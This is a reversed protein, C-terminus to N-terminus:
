GDGAGAQLLLGAWGRFPRWREAVAATDADDSLSYADRIARDRRRERAPFYDPAGAGRVVILEAFFPGIGPLERLRAIADAPDLQRLHDRTLVGDRAARALAHLQGVKTATLGRVGDLEALRDPPPFAGDVGIDGAIRNM